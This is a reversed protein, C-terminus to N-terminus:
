AAGRVLAAEAPLETMLYKGIDPEVAGLYRDVEDFVGADSTTPSRTPTVGLEELLPRLRDSMRDARFLERGRAAIQTREDAHALYHVCRDALADYDAVAYGGPWPNNAATESLVFKGNALLHSVRISEFSGGGQASINLVIKGRAILQDRLPGFCMGRETGRKPAAPAVVNVGRARLADLARQRRPSLIGMFVADIDETAPPLHELCPAYGPLVLRAAVGVQRLLDVNEPSFDWVPHRQLLELTEAGLLEMPSYSAQKFNFLIANGPPDAHGMVRLASGGLVIPRRGATEGYPTLEADFGLERLGALLSAMFERIPYSTQWRGALPPLTQIAFRTPGGGTRLERPTAKPILSVRVPGGAQKSLEAELARIDAPSLDGGVHPAGRLGLKRAAKRQAREHERRQRRAVSAM